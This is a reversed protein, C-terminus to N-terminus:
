RPADRLRGSVYKHLISAMLTQYPLGEEAARQRLAELDQRSIRINVRAAKSLATAAAARLEAQESAKVKRIKWDGREVSALLNKEEATVKSM